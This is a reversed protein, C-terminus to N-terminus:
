YKSSKSKSTKSKASKTKTAKAGGKAAFVPTTSFMTIAIAAILASFNRTVNNM